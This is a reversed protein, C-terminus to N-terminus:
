PLYFYIIVDLLYKKRNKNRVLIKNNELLYKNSDFFYKISNFLHKINGLIM